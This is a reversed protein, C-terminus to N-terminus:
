FSQPAAWKAAIADRLRQPKFIMENKGHDGSGSDIPEKDLARFVTEWFPAFWYEYLVPTFSKWRPGGMSWNHPSVFHCPHGLLQAEYGSGSSVTVFTLDGDSCFAAYTPMDLIQSTPFYSTWRATEPENADLPHPKHYIQDPEFRESDLGVPLGIQTFRGQSILSADGPVQGLFVLAPKSFVRTLPAMLERLASAQAEVFAADLRYRNIAREVQVDNTQIIFVLDSAFRLPGVRFNLYTGGISDIYTLISRSGEFLIVLKGAFIDFLRASMDADFSKADYYHAWKDLVDPGSKRYINQYFTEFNFDPTTYGLVDPSLGFPELAHRVLASFWRTNYPRHTLELNARLVDGCILIDRVL